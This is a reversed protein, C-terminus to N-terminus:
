DLHSWDFLLAANATTGEAVSEVSEGRVDSLTEAVYRVYAPENRRGRHPAPTLYPADTEILLRELPVAAAVRRLEDAKPFTIPGTLGLYFGMEVARRSQALHGSYSHLVGRRGEAINAWGTLIAMVDTQAERCHVIVPLGLEAAMELQQRFVKQQAEPPSYDHYYDLGIEGIAKVKPHRALAKLEKLEGGSVSRAGHPHVGVAAYIEKFQDALAVAKRSSPLDVGPNMIRRVGAERAREVVAARDKDFSTM